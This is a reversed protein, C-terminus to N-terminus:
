RERTARKKPKPPRPKKTVARDRIHESRKKRSVRPDRGAIKGSVSVPEKEGGHSLTEKLIKGLEQYAYETQTDIDDGYLAAKEIAAHDDPTLTDFMAQSDSISELKRLVNQVDDVTIEFALGM